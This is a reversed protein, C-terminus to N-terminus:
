NPPQSHPTLQGPMVEGANGGFREGADLPAFDGRRVAMRKLGDGLAKGDRQSFEAVVSQNDM